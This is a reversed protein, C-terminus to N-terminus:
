RSSRSPSADSSLGVRCPSPTGVSARAARTSVGVAELSVDDRARGNEDFQRLQVEEVVLFALREGDLLVDSAARNRGKAIGVTVKLYQLPRGASLARPKAEVDMVGVPLAFPRVVACGADAM